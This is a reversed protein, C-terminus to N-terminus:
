QSLAPTKSRREMQTQTMTEPQTPATSIKAEDAPTNLVVKIIVNRMNTLVVITGKKKM